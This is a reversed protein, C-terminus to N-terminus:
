GDCRDSRDNSGMRQHTRSKRENSKETKLYFLQPWTDRIIEALKYSTDTQIVKQTKTSQHIVL